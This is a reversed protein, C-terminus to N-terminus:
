DHPPRVMERFKERGFNQEALVAKILKSAPILKRLRKMYDAETQERLKEMRVVEDLIRECDRESMNQEAAKRYAQDIKRQTNRVKEKMEFYVPFFKDAEEPTLGAERIIFAETQCRMEEPDFKPRDSKRGKQERSQNAERPKKDDAMKMQEKVWPCLNKAVEIPSAAVLSKGSLPLFFLLFLILIHEINQKMFTLTTLM